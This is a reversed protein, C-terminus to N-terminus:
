LIIFQEDQTQLLTEDINNAATHYVNKLLLLTLDMAPKWYIQGKPTRLPDDNGKLGESQYRAKREISSAPPPLLPPPSLYLM